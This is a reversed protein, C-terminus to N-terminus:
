KPLIGAAKLQAERKAKFETGPKWQPYHDANAIALGAAGFLQLDELMGSLDWDPKIKDSPKHYDNATFEDRTKRGYGPPKEIFDIGAEPNMAPVGQLAFEFHDSRYYFGKEPEPDPVIIRNQQSAAKRAFDDLESYGLGILVLDKTRGYVNLADMNIAALTKALPYLPNRAYFGAGL